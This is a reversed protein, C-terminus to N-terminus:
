QLFWNDADKNINLFDLASNFCKVSPFDSEEKIFESNVAYRYYGSERNELNLQSKHFKEKFKELPPQVM